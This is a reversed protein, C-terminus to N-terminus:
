VAVPLDIRFLYEIVWMYEEDGLRVGYDTQYQALLFKGNEMQPVVPTQAPDPHGGFVRLVHEALEAAIVKASQEATQQAVIRFTWPVDQIAHNEHEEHGSMRDTVNGGGVIYVCFPFPTHPGAEADNLSVYESQDAATWRQRFLWDLVSDTWVKNVARHLDALAVSM